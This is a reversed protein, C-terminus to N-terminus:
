PYLPRYCKGRQDEDVIGELKYRCARPAQDGCRRLYPGEGLCWPRAERLQQYGVLYNYRCDPRDKRTRVVKAHGDVFNTEVLEQHRAQIATDILGMGIASGCTGNFVVVLHADFVVSTEAPFPVQALTASPKPNTRWETNLPHEGPKALEFNFMYSLERMETCEGGSAGVGPLGRAGDHFNMPQPDSPCRLTDRNKIYPEVATMMTYECEQGARNRSRYIAIPFREDYDQLYMQVATAWNRGNNVCQTQRAKERAQAFVPFLIAALIAIIAIVVLLEILTFGKSKM